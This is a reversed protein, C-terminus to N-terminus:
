ISENLNTLDTIADKPQFQPNKKIINATEIEFADHRLQMNSQMTNCRQVYSKWEKNLLDFAFQNTELDDSFNNFYTNLHENLSDTYLKGMKDMKEIYRKQREEVIKEQALQLATKPKPTGKGLADKAMSKIAEKKAIVSGGKKSFIKKIKEILPTKDRVITLAM